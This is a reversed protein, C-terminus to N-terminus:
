YNKLEDCTAISADVFRALFKRRQQLKKVNRQSQGLFLNEELPANIEWVVPLNFPRLAKLLSYHDTKLGEHVRIYILDVAKLFKLFERRKYQKIFPINYDYFIKHFTHGREMLKIALQYAHIGAGTAPPAWKFNIFYGINM